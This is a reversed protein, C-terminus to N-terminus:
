RKAWAQILTGIQHHMMQRSGQVILPERFDGAHELGSPAQDNDIEHTLQVALALRRAKV